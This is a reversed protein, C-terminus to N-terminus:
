EYYREEFRRLAHRCRVCDVDDPGYSEGTRDSIWSNHAYGRAGAAGCLPHRARPFSLHLTGSSPTEWLRFLQMKDSLSLKERTIM